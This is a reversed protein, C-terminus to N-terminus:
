SVASMIIATGMVTILRTATTEDGKRDKWIAMVLAIAALVSWFVQNSNM